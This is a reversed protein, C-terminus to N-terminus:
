KFHKMIIEYSHKATYNNELYQRANIGMQKRLEPNCLLKVNKNFDDINGSECWFGFSGEEIVKGIDTSVDTAALVPM